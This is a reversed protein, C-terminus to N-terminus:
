FVYISFIVHPARRMLGLVSQIQRTNARYRVSSTKGKLLGYEFGWFFLFPPLRACVSRSRFHNFSSVLSSLWKFAKQLQHKQGIIPALKRNWPDPIQIYAFKLDQKGDDTYTKRWTIFSKLFCIKTSKKRLYEKISKVRDRSGYYPVAGVSFRMMATNTCRLVLNDLNSWLSKFTRNKRHEQHTKASFCQM